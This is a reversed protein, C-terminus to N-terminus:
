PEPVVPGNSVLKRGMMASPAWSTCWRVEYNLLAFDMFEKLGLAGCRRDGEVAWLVGDVDLYM